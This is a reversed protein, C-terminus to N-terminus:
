KATEGLFRQALLKGEEVAPQDYPEVGLLHAAIITELMFHMFLAGFTEEDIADVEIVRTPRGNKILTDITARQEAAVLDGITRDALYVLRADDVQDKHVLPGQGKQDMTILTHFKDNPGALYLQLQSHQDVPGLSAIPLTGKGEKGLSEAWLQRYWDGFRGLRNVYAMLNNATIGKELALGIAVVAGLAPPCEEAPASELIPALVKAAGERFKVPDLGLIQAPLLGVTSLVSYRGGLAPHHDLVPFGIEDALRRLSNNGPTAIAAFHKAIEEGLGASKLAVMAALTQQLTEPTGGSKSIALFKTTSLDFNEFANALTHPDLNDFFHLAPRGEPATYGPTGHGTLQAITMGGLSSGGIGFVIINSAGDSLYDAV